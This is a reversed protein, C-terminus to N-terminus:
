LHVESKTLYKYLPFALLSVGVFLIVNGATALGYFGAQYQKYIISAILDTTFGPGGKTMAWILDFSRLGGIFALIIVSNMAPRSLPVTIYRFANMSSGGDIKLAEYYEGPIASIGAIYIVTAVGIGKWVDVLAVSLLAIKTNGLWDPGVIGLAALSTNILGSSPHMMISFAIGVAITSLLTPFFIVSRLYNKFLATSTLFAGLLLGLIVKLGCTVVAYILTNRFGISLATESFFTVYNDFGIFDWDTLTWRTMSFFLSLVTPLLYFVFYILFAPVLFLYSYTRITLKTM